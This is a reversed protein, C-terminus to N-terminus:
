IFFFLFSLICSYMLILFLFIWYFYFIHLYIFTMFSGAECVYSFSHVKWIYTDGVMSYMCSMYKCMYKDFSKGDVDWRVICNSPCVEPSRAQDMM